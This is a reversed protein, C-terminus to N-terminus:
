LLQRFRFCDTTHDNVMGCAQMHAYVTTSGVFKFGRKKLDKSLLDSIPSTAPVDKLTKPKNVITKNNLFGWIYECFSGYEKQVEMFRQANNIASEIKLRYRIIGPNDLLELIKTEDFEAM